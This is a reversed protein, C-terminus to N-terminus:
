STEDWAQVKGVTVKDVCLGLGSPGTDLVVEDIPGEGRTLYQHLGQMVPVRVETSGLTVTAVGDESALYDIAVWWGAELPDGLRTDELAITRPGGKVAYGCGEIPGPLSALGPVVEARRPAGREDLIQLDNGATSAHVAPLPRFVRSVYNDPFRLPSVVDEPVWVDVVHLDRVSAAEAVNRTYVKAVYDDHWLAVYRVTSLGAGALLVLCVAIRGVLVQRDHHEQPFAVARPSHVPLRVDLLLLGLTLVIVPTADALYRLELAAVAGVVSARGVALLVFIAALYGALILLARWRAGGRQYLWYATLAFASWTATVAWSPPDVLGAPAIPNAWRWPGGVLAPGLSLRMFNDALAGWPLDYGELPSEVTTVYLATYAAGLVGLTVWLPAYARLTRTASARIREALAPGPSAPDEAPPAFFLFAVAAVVPLVLAAKVYFAMGLLVSLLTLVLWLRRRTRFYQVACSLTLFFAAHLPVQNIAAAWWMYATLTLPSALYVLLLPIIAWRRGFVTVLMLLCSASAVAQLGVLIGAAFPWDQPGANTMVWASLIGGPMLQSDHPTFLETLTLPAEYLRSMLNFDDGIFWSGASAWARVAVQVVVLAAGVLVVPHTLNRILLSPRTGGSSAM